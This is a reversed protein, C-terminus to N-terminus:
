FTKGGNTPETGMSYDNNNICEGNSCIEDEECAEGRGCGCSAEYVGDSSNLCTDSTIECADYDGCMCIGYQCNNVNIKDCPGNNDGCTCADDECTDSTAPCEADKSCEESKFM